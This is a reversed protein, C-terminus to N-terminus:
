LKILPLSYREDGTVLVLIYRGPSVETLAFDIESPGSPLLGNQEKVCQGSLDYLLCAVQGPKIINMRVKVGSVAPNPYLSPAMVAQIDSEGLNRPAEIKESLVSTNMYQDHIFLTLLSDSLDFLSLDVEINGFDGTIFQELFQGDVQLDVRALGDTGALAIKLLQDELLLDEIFAAPPDDDTYSCRTAHNEHAFPKKVDSVLSGEVKIAMPDACGLGDNHLYVLHPVQGPDHFMVLSAIADLALPDSSALILGM